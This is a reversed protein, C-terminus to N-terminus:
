VDVFDLVLIGLLILSFLGIISVIFNTLPSAQQHQNIFEKPLKGFTVIRCVPWGVYWAIEEFGELILWALFRVIYGLLRLIAKFVGEVIEDLCNGWHNRVVRKVRM